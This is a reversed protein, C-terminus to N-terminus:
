KIAELWEKAMLQSGAMSPHVGDTTWYIGPAKKQAGNFVKQFPIWVAGFDSAVRQAAFRYHDFEPYWTRDVASINNVAFPEAIILKVDPLAQKTRNLLARFDDEYSQLTGTYSGNHKHWYDNVGILLSLINPKIELCDKDWREALQFIKNGSVGRNYIKLNKDAHKNLLESAALFAYGRGLAGAQNFDRNDRNRGADTISDGQFLIVDNESLTIKASKVDPAASLLQPSVLSLLGGVAATKIFNRREKKIRADM